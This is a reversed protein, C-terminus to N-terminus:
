TNRNHPFFRVKPDFNFVNDYKFHCELGCKCTGSSLLYEKIQEPSTLATNSPSIYIINGNNLLRKWGFPVSVISSQHNHVSTGILPSTNQQQPVSSPGVALVVGGPRVSVSSDYVVMEPAPNQVVVIGEDTSCSSSCSSEAADSRVSDCRVSQSPCEGGMVTIYSSDVYPAERDCDPRGPGAQREGSLVDSNGSNYNKVQSIVANNQYNVNNIIPQPFGNQSLVETYYGQQQHVAGNIVQSTSYDPPKLTNPKGTQNCCKTPGVVPAMSHSQNTYAGNQLSPLNSPPVNQQGVAYAQAFNDNSVYVVVNQLGASASLEPKGAM